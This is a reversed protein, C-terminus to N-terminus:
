RRGMEYMHTQSMDMEVGTTYPQVSGKARKMQQKRRQERMRTKKPDQSPTNYGFVKIFVGMLVCLGLGMLLVAWWYEEIWNKVKTLNVPDFIMNTLQNFPGQADIRQCKSFTDCYGRFNDCPSGAPLKIALNNGTSSGRSKEQDAQTLMDKFPKNGAIELAATDSSSICKKTTPNQCAVFCLSSRSASESTQFCEEWAGNTDSIRQCVPGICEGFNCVKSFDNCFTGDPKADPVPCSANQGTCKSQMKCETAEACIFNDAEPKYTCGVECCPGSGPSCQTKEALRCGKLGAADDRGECCTAVACVGFGCDCQEGAETIQNGCFAQGSEEFCNKRLSTALVQEIILSMNGISCKSFKNNNPKDGSTASPFMIYNGSAADSLSTGYPACEASGIDHPSGFNHGAEHAFTLQSVRTPVTRGFNIITVIGTNLSKKKNGAYNTYKGCVGSQTNAETAVWALGLTGGSFDRNTFTFVLCYLNHDEASTLDLYNSVDLTNSCYENSRQACDKMVTSRHIVFNLGTSPNNQSDHFVTSSYIRSIASVHSAFFALIEEEAQEESVSKGHKTDKFYNYLLPDARVHLPCSNRKGLVARKQRSSTEHASRKPRNSYESYMNHSQGSYDDTWSARAHVNPKPPEQLRSAEKMFEHVSFHDVGCASGTKRRERYPDHNLHTEPYIITHVSPDQGKLYKAAAEIHYTTEPVEVQGELSGNHVSLHVWSEPEGEVSGQYIFSTDVRRLGVGDTFVQHDPKFVGQLPELKLHFDRGYANFRVNLHTDASRRVRQHNSHVTRRDYVLPQYDLIYENLPGCEALSIFAVVLYVVWDM